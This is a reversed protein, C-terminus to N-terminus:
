VTRLGNVARKSHPRTLGCAPHLGTSFAHTRNEDGMALPSASCIRMWVASPLDIAGLNSLSALFCDVTLSMLKAVGKGDALVAM